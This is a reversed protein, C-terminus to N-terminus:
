YIILIYIIKNNEVSLAFEYLWKIELNMNKQM